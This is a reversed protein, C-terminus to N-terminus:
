LLSNGIYYETKEFKPPNDNEDLITIRVSALSSDRELIDRNGRKKSPYYDADNTAKIYLHYRDQVERDFSINSYLKGTTKDIKFSSDENGSIIYYYVRFCSCIQYLM